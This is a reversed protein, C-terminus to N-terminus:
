QLDTCLKHNLLIKQMGVAEMIHWFREKLNYKPNLGAKMEQKKKKKVVIQIM